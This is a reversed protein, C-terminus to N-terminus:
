ADFILNADLKWLETLCEVATSKINEFIKIIKENNETNKLQCVVLIMEVKM